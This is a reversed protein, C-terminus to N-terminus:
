VNIILAILMFLNSNHCHAMNFRCTFSRFVTIKLNRVKIFDNYWKNIYFYRGKIPKDIEFRTTGAFFESKTMNRIIRYSIWQETTSFINYDLTKSYLNDIIISTNYIDQDIHLSNTGEHVGFKIRNDGINYLEFEIIYRSFHLLDVKIFRAESDASIDIEGNSITKSGMTSKWENNGDILNAEYRFMISSFENKKDSKSYKKLSNVIQHSCFQANKQPQRDVIRHKEVM